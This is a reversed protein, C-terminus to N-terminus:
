GTFRTKANRFLDGIVDRQQQQELPTGRLVHPEPMYGQGQPPFPQNQSPYQQSPTPHQQYQAQHQPYQVQHQQPYQQQALQQQQQLQHLQYQNQQLQREYQELYQRQYDQSYQPTANSEEAPYQTQPPYHPQVQPATQQRQQVHEEVQPVYQRTAAEAEAAERSREALIASEMIKEATIRMMDATSSPPPESFIWLGYYKQQGDEGLEESTVIIYQDTIDIYESKLLDASFDQDLGKRNIVIVRYREVPSNPAGPLIEPTLKCVFLTGEIGCKEWESSEINFTYVVAFNALSQIAIVSPDIRQLAIMNMEENTRRQVPAPAPAPATDTMTAADTDYDSQLTRTHNQAARTRGGRKQPMTPLINTALSTITFTGTHQPLEHRLVSPIHLKRRLKPPRAKGVDDRAIRRMHFAVVIESSEM